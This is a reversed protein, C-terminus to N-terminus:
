PKAVFDITLVVKDQVLDDPKGPYVVNFDKRDIAFETSAHVQDATVEIKAPFSVEKTTGRITLNGTVTATGDDGAAIGTSTFKSTPHGPVDFFDQNKLHETLKPHDAELSDMDVVFEIGTLKGGDVTASGEWKHFVIPHEATIKAGLAKLTSAGPDVKWATGAAPKPAETKAETVTAEVKDKAVDEICGTLLLSLAITSLM